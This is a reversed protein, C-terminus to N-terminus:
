TDLLIGEVKKELEGEPSRQLPEAVKSPDGKGPEMPTKEKKELILTTEAEPRREAKPPRM